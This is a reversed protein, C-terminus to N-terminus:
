PYGFQAIQALKELCTGFYLKRLGQTDPTTSEYETGEQSWPFFLSFLRVGYALELSRPAEWSQTWLRQSLRLYLSLLFFLHHRWLFAVFPIHRVKRTNLIITLISGSESGRSAQGLEPDAQSTESNHYPGLKM